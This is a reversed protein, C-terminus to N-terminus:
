ISPYVVKGYNDKRLEVGVDLKNITIDRERIIRECLEGYTLYAFDYQKRKEYIIGLRLMNRIYVYLQELTMKNSEYERLEHVANKYYTEAEELEDDYYHLDGLVGQLSSISDIYKASIKDNKDENQYEKKANKLLDQYHKKLPLTEDLSFSFLASFVEDTKAMAFIENAILGDFKYDSLSFNSKNIHVQTLYNIFDVAVSKLEPARNVELMEPSMDLHKWSFSNKHFKFLFDVFRLSSVLLKDSLEKINSEALRYFIPTILYAIIGLTYQKYYNFSLFHRSSQYRQVFLTNKRNEGNEIHIEVFSEFLQMMKKPAGKSVHALYVIFQQVVAIVKQVEEKQTDKCFIENKLYKQYNKLDFSEVPYDHPILRRCVFEEPLSAISSEQPILRKGTQHDTLFSPVLIVVNFISGIYNNRESVDALHIDFMERGAIFIFKAKATSLFYKMNSLIRLNETQRERTAHISFLSAKTQPNEKELSADGPEVKDLEDFVFVLNPRCMILPIQQIDGLIDQLEKEIERADAINRMKKTKTRIGSNASESGIRITNERETSHTIDSNLRKLRQKIIRHTVFFSTLWTCRFLLVCFLYILLFSLLFLYNVNPIFNKILKDLALLLVSVKSGVNGGVKIKIKTEVTTGEVDAEVETKIKGGIKSSISESDEADKEQNVQYNAKFLENEKILRNGIDSLSFAFLLLFGFALARWPLMRRLSRHYKNYETSLTRAILRLIDKEDNLKHGFNIRLYLRNHNKLYNWVPVLFLSKLKLLISTDNKSLKYKKNKQKNKRLKSKILLFIMNCVFIVALYGFFAITPSINKYIISVLQTFSVVLIIKLSYQTKGYPNYPNILYGLEKFASTIGDLIKMGINHKPLKRRYSNFCCLLIFSLAFILSSAVALIKPHKDPIINIVQLCFQTGAVALLLLIVYRLNEFLDSKAKLSTENIVWSVLSTKGVGRNGAILYVGPEDPSDEVVKKLKERVRERGIFAHPSDGSSSHSFSYHPLEIRIKKIKSNLIDPPKM